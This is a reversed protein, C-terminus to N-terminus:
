VPTLAFKEAEEQSLMEETNSVPLHGSRVQQEFAAVARARDRGFLALVKDVLLWRPALTMGVTARYSSWEWAAAHEVLAAEVPNRVVYAIAGVLHAVSEIQM